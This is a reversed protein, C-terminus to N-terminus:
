GRAAPESDADDAAALRGYAGGLLTEVDALEGRLWRVLKMRDRLESAPMDRRLDTLIALVRHVAGALETETSQGRENSAAAVSRIRTPVTRRNM